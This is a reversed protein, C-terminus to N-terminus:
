RLFVGAGAGSCINKNCIIITTFFEFSLAVHGSGRTRDILAPLTPAKM